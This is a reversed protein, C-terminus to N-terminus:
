AKAQSPLYSALTILGVGTLIINVSIFVGLLASAFGPRAACFLAFIIMLISSLILGIWRSNKFADPLMDNVKKIRVALVIRSIALVIIWAAVMGIIAMDVMFQMPINVIVIIGFILSIIAGALYWGSIEAYQKVDFWAAITGIADCLILVGVVYGTSLYTEVPTFLCYLGGVILVCGLFITLIKRWNM